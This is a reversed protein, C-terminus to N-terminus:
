FQRFYRRLKLRIKRCYLSLLFRGFVYAFKANDLTYRKWLRRPEQFFRYLWELYSNRIWKPARSKTRAIYHFVGGVGMYIASPLIGWNRYIWLEQKPLGMGVLVLHPRRRNIQNIIMREEKNSFFGHHAGCITIKPYKGEITDKTRRVTKDDSGLLYLSLEEKNLITLLDDIFDGVNIREKLHENLLKSALVPGWGDLYVLDASNIVNAYKSNSLFTVVGFTNMNLILKKKRKSLWNDITKLFQKKSLKDFPVSEFLYTRKM